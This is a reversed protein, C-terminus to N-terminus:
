LWWLRKTSGCGGFVLGVVTAQHILILTALPSQIVGRVRREILPAHESVGFGMTIAVIHMPTYM